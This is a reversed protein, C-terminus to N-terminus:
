PCFVALVIGTGTHGPAPSYGPDTLVIAMTPINGSITPGSKTISNSVIVSILSPVSAPPGSSNGPNSTWAGGCMAPNPSTSSTFGKFSSPATGGSLSNLDAWRASWFTVHHGVVANEDGIVFNGTVSPAPTPPTATPSPMPTATPTASPSATPIATPSPSPPPSDAGPVPIKAAFADNLGGSSYARIPEGWSEYGTGAVHVNGGLDLVLAHGDSGPGLFTNWTLTGDPALEAAFASIGGPFPRVPSGWTGTSMGALYVQGNPNVVVASSVTQEDAMGFFTNWTITGNADLKAAYGDQTGSFPHVPSGWSGFRCFGTVYVNGAGDVAIGSATAAGGGLFTNWSLIGTRELKAAFGSDETGDYPRVPSGWTATSFGAVYVNELDDVAIANAQDSGSSGLFTNWALAGDSDLRAVFADYGGNHASVPSGWTASSYGSVYVHGSWDVAVANGSDDAPSGLFTNWILNGNSDVKAAFADKVGSFGRVPSAWTEYTVGALYLNGVNDAAIGSAIENGSDGFFTNWVLNGSSDLKAVFIDYGGHHATLPSGWTADSAGTVFVNGALDIVIGFAQDDTDSGLYTNWTLTPDIFLPQDRDYDGLVFTVETDDHVAFAVQVPVRQGAREQWAQPASENMTGSKFRVNLSGDPQLAVPANYHLHISSPSANAELSYTSRLLGNAPVDYTLAVGTWLNSYTVKAMSTTSNKEPSASFSEPNTECSDVFQVRLAHSGNAIHIGAATFNLVHDASRFQLDGNAASAEISRSFSATTALALASILLNRFRYPFM